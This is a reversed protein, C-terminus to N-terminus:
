PCMYEVCWIQSRPMRLSKQRNMLNVKFIRRGCMMTHGLHSLEATLDPSRPPMQGDLLLHSDTMSEAEEAWNRMQAM